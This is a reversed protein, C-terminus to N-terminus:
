RAGKTYKRVVFDTILFTMIGFVAVQILVVRTGQKVAMDAYKDMVKEPDTAVDIWNM